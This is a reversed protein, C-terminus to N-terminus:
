HLSNGLNIHFLVSGTSDTVELSWNSWDGESADDEERLEEIAKLAQAYAQKLDRVEIGDPDPIKESGNVLNFYCRM